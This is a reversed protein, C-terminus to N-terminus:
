GKKGWSLKDRLLRYYRSSGSTTARRIFRLRRSSKRVKIEDGYEIPIVIQGDITLGIQNDKFRRETQVSINIQRNHPVVIPRVSLEAPCIPTFVMSDIQPHVIPGGASLSHGTSGTPSAIIVGDAKFSIMKRQDIEARLNILRAFNGQNIVVDNLALHTAMKKNKRYVTARLVLREDLQYKGDFFEDLSDFVKPGKKDETHFGLNGLNIGYVFLDKRKPLDRVLKLITGDGGLTIVMDSHKLIYDVGHKNEEGFFASLHSDWILTRKRKELYTKLKQLFAESRDLRSRGILGITQFDQQKKAKM